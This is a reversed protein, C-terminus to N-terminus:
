LGLWRGLWPGILDIPVNAGIVFVLTCFVAMGISLVAVGILSRGPAALAALATTIAVAPLFGLGRVTFGFLIPPGLILVLARLSVYSMREGAASRFAQLCILLGLGTLVISLLVPFFGPGMRAPTGIPIKFYAQLGFALGVLIFFGGVRLDKLNMSM